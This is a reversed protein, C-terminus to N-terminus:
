IVGQGVEMNFWKKKNHGVIFNGVLKLNDSWFMKYYGDAMIIEDKSCGILKAKEEWSKKLFGKSSVALKFYKDFIRHPGYNLLDTKNVKYIGPAIKEICNDTRILRKICKSVQSLSVNMVDVIRSQSIRCLRDDGKFEELLIIIKIDKEM